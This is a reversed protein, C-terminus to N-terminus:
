FPDQLFSWFLKDHDARKTSPLTNIPCAKPSAPPPAMASTIGSTNPQVPTKTENPKSMWHLTWNNMTKRCGRCFSALDLQHSWGQITLTDSFMNKIKNSTTHQRYCLCTNFIAWFCTANEASSQFNSLSYIHKHQLMHNRSPGKFYKRRLTVSQLKPYHQWCPLLSWQLYMKRSDQEPVTLQEWDAARPTHPALFM